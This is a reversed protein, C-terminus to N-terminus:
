MCVKNAMCVYCVQVCLCICISKCILPCAKTPVAHMPWASRVNPSNSATGPDYSKAKAPSPALDWPATTVQMPHSPQSIHGLHDCTTVPPWLHDCTTTPLRLHDSSALLTSTQALYFTRKRPRLMFSHKDGTMLHKVFEWSRWSLGAVSCGNVQILMNM